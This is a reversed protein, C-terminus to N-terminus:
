TNSENPISRRLLFLLADQIVHINCNRMVMRELQQVELQHKAENLSIGHNNAYRKIENAKLQKIEM